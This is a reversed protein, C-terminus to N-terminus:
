APRELPALFRATEEYALPGFAHGRHHPDILVRLTCGFRAAERELYACLPHGPPLAFCDTDHTNYILLLRRQAAAVMLDEHRVLDFFEPSFQEYDGLDRVALELRQSLPVGGALAVCADIRPELAAFLYSMLGGGSRGAIAIPGRGEAVLRQTLASLPAMMAVLPAHADPGHMLDNHIERGPRRDLVNVGCLLMDVCCVDWGRRLLFDVTPWGLHTGAGTHGEHYIATGGHPRSARLRVIRSRLDGADGVLL